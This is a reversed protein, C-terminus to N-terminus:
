VDGNRKALRELGRNIANTTGKDAAGIGLVEQSFKCTEPCDIHMYFDCSVIKDKNDHCFMGMESPKFKKYKQNYKDKTM